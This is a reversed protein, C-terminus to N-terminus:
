ACARCTLREFQMARSTRPISLAISKIRIMSHKPIEQIRRAKLFSTKILKRIMVQGYEQTKHKPDRAAGTTGRRGGCIM